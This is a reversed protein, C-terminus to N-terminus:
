NGLIFEVRRNKQKGDPTENTAIPRSSGFGKCAIRAEPIGKSMLHKKVSNARENSLNINVSKNGINDTNGMIAIKYNPNDILIKAIKDLEPFSEPKLNSKGTEYLVKKFIYTKNLEPDSEFYNVETTFFKQAFYSQLFTPIGLQGVAMGLSFGKPQFDCNKGAENPKNIVALYNKEFLTTYIKGDPAVQLAGVWGEYTDPDVPTTGIVQGSEIIKQESGAQLNYQYIKGKGGAGGYLLSGDPSFEIGYPYSQPEPLDLTIPSSVKGTQNDFDTVEFLNQEEIALALNSGDPSAKMYGKSGRHLSGVASTIPMKNVGMKTVLYSYFVNDNFGHIIVWYDKGNRHRVATLKETVPAKLTINKETVNGLGNLLSMDIVSYKLGEQGAEKDTTFLYFLTSSEPKPIIVGSQTSSPDGKLDQGNTMPEHKGNWVTIGDTYFLLKGKQDCITACGENTSLIGDVLAVPAGRSFDVGAKKGFYWINAESQAHALSAVFLVLCWAKSLNIIFKM